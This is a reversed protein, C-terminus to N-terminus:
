REAQTRGASEALVGTEPHARLYAAFFPCEPVVKLQRERALSLGAKILQTALGQGRLSEPVRTHTFTITCPDTRYEAFAVQDGITIELRHKPANDRVTCDPDPM